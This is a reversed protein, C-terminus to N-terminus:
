GCILWRADTGPLARLLRALNARSPERRGRTFHNIATADIGSRQALDCELLNEHEIAISLRTAFGSGVCSVLQDLRGCEVDPKTAELEDHQQMHIARKDIEAFMVREPLVGSTAHVPKPLPMWHTPYEGDELLAWDHWTIPMSGISRGKCRSSIWVRQSRRSCVLVAEDNWKPEQSTILKWERRM